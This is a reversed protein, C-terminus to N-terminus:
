RRPYRKPRPPRAHGTTVVRFPIDEEKPTKHRVPIFGKSFPNDRKTWTFRDDFEEEGMISHGLYIGEPGFEGGGSRPENIVIFEGFIEASNEYRSVTHPSIAAVVDYNQRTIRTAMMKPTQM